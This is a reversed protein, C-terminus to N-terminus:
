ALAAQGFGRRCQMLGGVLGFGVVMMAWTAPEPAATVAGAPLGELTYLSAYAPDIEFTPDLFVGSSARGFGPGSIVSSEAYMTILIDADPHVYITDDLRLLDIERGSLIKQEAYALRSGQDIEVRAKEQAYTTDRLSQAYASVHIPVLPDGPAGPTSSLQFTYSLYAEAQVFYYDDNDVESRVELTGNHAGDSSASASGVLTNPGTEATQPTAGSHIVVFSGGQEVNHNITVDAIYCFNDEPHGLCGAIAPSALPGGVGFSLVGLAIAARRPWNLALSANRRGRWGTGDNARTMMESIGVSQNTM